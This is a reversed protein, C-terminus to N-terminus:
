PRTAEGDVIFRGKILRFPELDLSDVLELDYFYKGASVDSMTSAAIEIGINGTIGEYNLYIAGSGTIGEVQTINGDIYIVPTADTEEKSRRVQMRGKSYGTLPVPTENPNQWLIEAVFKTGQEGYFDHVPAPM